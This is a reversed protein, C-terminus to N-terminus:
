RRRLASAAAEHARRLAHAWLEPRDSVYAPDRAIEACLTAIFVDGADAAAPDPSPPAVAIDGFAGAARALGSDHTLVLTADPRMGARLRAESLDLVFMDAASCRVVDAERLLAHLTRPDRGAWVHWRTNLDLVVIAGARRAARAARCLGAMPALAPSVGSILLVPAEWGDPVEVPLEDEARHPIMHKADGAAELVVLGAHAPVLRVGRVDVGAAAVRAVLARSPSHDGLAAALGVRLGDKALAVAAAVAGGGPRFRLREGTSAAMDWIAEGVCIVDLTTRPVTIRLEERTSAILGVGVDYM